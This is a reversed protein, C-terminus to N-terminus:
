YTTRYVYKSFSPVSMTEELSRQSGTLVYVRLLNYAKQFNLSAINTTVLDTETLLPGKVEKRFIKASDYYYHVPYNMEILIAGNFAEQVSSFDETASYIGITTNEKTLIQAEIRDSFVNTVAAIFGQRVYTSSLMILDQPSFEGTNGSNIYITAVPNQTTGTIEVNRVIRPPVYPKPSLIMLESSIGDNEFTTIFDTIRIDERGDRIAYPEVIMSPSILPNVVRFKEGQISLHCTVNDSAVFEFQLDNAPRDATFLTTVNNNEIYSIETVNELLRLNLYRPAEPNVAYSQNRNNYTIIVLNRTYAISFFPTTEDTKVTFVCGENQSPNSISLIINGNNGRVLALNYKLNVGHAQIGTDDGTVCNSCSIPNYRRSIYGAIDISTLIQSFIKLQNIEAKLLERFREIQRRDEKYKISEVVTTRIVSALPSLMIVILGVIILVLLIEVLSFGNENKRDSKM